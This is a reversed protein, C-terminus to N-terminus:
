RNRMAIASDSLYHSEGEGNVIFPFPALPHPREEIRSFDHLIDWLDTEEIPAVVVPLIIRRAPNKQYLEYALKAEDHAQQSHLATPSLLVIFVPRDKLESVIDDIPQDTRQISSDPWIDVDAAQLDATLRNYIADDDPYHSVFVRM